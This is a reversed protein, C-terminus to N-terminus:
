QTSNKHSLRWKSPTTNMIRKFARAYYAQDEFGAKLAVEGIPIDCKKLSELSREIRYRIIYEFLPLGLEKKFKKSLYTPSTDLENALEDLSIHKSYNIDINILVDRILDSYGSYSHNRILASYEFLLEKMIVRSADSTSISEIRKGMNSSLRDVYIPHVGVDYATKRLLTNMIITYNQINRVPNKNRKEIIDKDLINFSISNILDMDGTKVADLLSKESLYRKEISKADYYDKNELYNKEDASSENTIVKVRFGDKGWLSEFLTNILPEFLGDIPILPIIYSLKAVVLRTVYPGILIYTDDIKFLIYNIKDETIIRLVEREKPREISKSISAFLPDSFVFETEEEFNVSFRNLVNKVFDILVM